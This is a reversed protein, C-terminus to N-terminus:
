LRVLGGGGRARPAAKLSGVAHRVVSVTSGSWSRAVAVVDVGESVQIASVVVEALRTHDALRLV